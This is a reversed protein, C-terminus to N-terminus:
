SYRHVLNVCCCSVTLHDQSCHTHQVAHPCHSGVGLFCPSSFSLPSKNKHRTKIEGNRWKPCHLNRHEAKVFFDKFFSIKSFVLKYTFVEWIGTPPLVRLLSFQTFPWAFFCIDAMTKGSGRDLTYKCFIFGLNVAQLYDGRIVSLWCLIITKLLVVLHTGLVATSIQMTEWHSHAFRQELSELRPTRETLRRFIQTHAWTQRLCNSIYWWRGLVMSKRRHMAFTVLNVARGKSNRPCKQM